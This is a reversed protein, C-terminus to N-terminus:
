KFVLSDSEGTSLMVNEVEDMGIQLYRNPKHQAEGKWSRSSDWYPGSHKHDEYNTHVDRSKSPRPTGQSPKYRGFHVCHLGPGHALCDGDSDIKQEGENDPM